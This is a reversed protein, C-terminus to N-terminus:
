GSSTMSPIGWADSLVAAGEQPIKVSMASLNLLVSTNLIKQIM